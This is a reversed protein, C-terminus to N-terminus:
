SAPRRKDRRIVFRTAYEEDTLAAIKNDVLDTKLAEAQMAEWTFDIGRRAAFAKRPMVVWVAGDPHTRTSLRVLEQRFGDLTRPWYFIADYRRRRLGRGVLVGPGSAARLVQEAEAPPNLLAVAKGPLLGLRDALSSM